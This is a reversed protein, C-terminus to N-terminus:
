SPASTALAQRAEAVWGSADMANFLELAREILAQGAARDTRMRFLGYALLTQGLEPRSQIADLVDLSRRFAADAASADSSAEYSQGLVRFAAGQELRFHSKEALEAARRAAALAAPKDDLALSLQALGMQLWVMGWVQSAGLAECEPLARELLRRAVDHRGLKLAAITAWGSVWFAPGWERIEWCHPLNEEAVRMADEWLGKYMYPEAEAARWARLRPDDLRDGLERARAAYDLAEALRGARASYCRGGSAMEYGQVSTEGSAGLVDIARGIHVLSSEYRGVQGLYGGYYLDAVAHVSEDGTRKARDLARRLVDEDQSLWGLLTEVKVLRADDELRAAVSLARELHQLGAAQEPPNRRWGPQGALAVLTDIYVRERDPTAPLRDLVDLAHWYHAIAEPRAYLTRAREAAELTYTLAKDWDEALRWHHALLAARGAAPTPEQEFFLALRRNLVQREDLLISSAAAEQTLAHKFVYQREPVHSWERLLDARLLQAISRDLDGHGDYLAQLARYSVFRGIVAARQLVAKAAAPLRDIRAAILGRLTPPIAIRSVEGTAVWREGDRRLAGEEILTRILEEVFFPNGESQDLIRGRIAEPLEALHLLNEVLRQSDEPVLPPLTLETMRHPYHRQVHFRFDWSGGDHDPRSTVLIMLPRVDTLESLLSLSEITAPDAWHLDEVTLAVPGRASLAEVISRLALALQSQLARPDTAVSSAVGPEADMGLLHAVAAHVRDYNGGALARLSVRLKAKAVQPAETGSLQFVARLIQIIPGYSAMQTFAQCRGELWRVPEPRHDRLENKLRSKGIGAEGIISVIQGRGRALEEGCRQLAALERDRGVVPSSLGTIGRPVPGSRLGTLLHATVPAPFGKLSLSPLPESEVLSRVLRYTEDSVVIGAAASQLRAALNAVEGTVMFERAPETVAVAEGSAIGVRLDLRAGYEQEFMSNLQGVSERMAVAARVAREADDEHVQPVGFVAMVADGAYKEVTGGFARIQAAMEDFFASLLARFQEPERTVALETSGALDAFLVTVLKREEASVM